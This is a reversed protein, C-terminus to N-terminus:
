LSCELISNNHKNKKYSMYFRLKSSFNSFFFINSNYKKQTHLNKSIKFSAFNVYFENKM